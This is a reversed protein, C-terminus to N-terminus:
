RRRTVAKGGAPRMEILKATCANCVLACEDSVLGLKANLGIDLDQDGLSEIIGNCSLCRRQVDEWRGDAAGQAPAVHRSM